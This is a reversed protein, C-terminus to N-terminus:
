GSEADRGTRSQLSGGGLAQIPIGQAEALAAARSGGPLDLASGKFLGALKAVGYTALMVAIRAVTPGIRQGYRIGAGRVGEFDRAHALEDLMASFGKVVHNFLDV